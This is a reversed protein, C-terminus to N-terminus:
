AMAKGADEGGSPPRFSCVRAVSDRAQDPDPIELIVAGQYGAVALARLAAEWPVTGQGLGLHEDREGQNDHLHVHMLREGLAAVFHAPDERLTHLHGFDM